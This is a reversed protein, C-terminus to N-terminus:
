NVAETVTQTFSGLTYHFRVRICFTNTCLLFSIFTVNTNHSVNFQCYYFSGHMYHLLFRIPLGVVTTYLFSTFICDSLYCLQIVDHM